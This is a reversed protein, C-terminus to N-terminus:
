DTPTFPNQLLERLLMKVKKTNMFTTSKSIGIM